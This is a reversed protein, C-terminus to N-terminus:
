SLSSIWRDFVERVREILGRLANRDVEINGDEVRVIGLNRASELWLAARPHEVIRETNRMISPLDDGLATLFIALDRLSLEESHM